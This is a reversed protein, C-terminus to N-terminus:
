DRKKDNANKEIEISQKEHNYYDQIHKIIYFTMTKWEWYWENNPKQRQLKKLQKLEYRIISNNICKIFSDYRTSYICLLHYKGPELAPNTKNLEKLTEQLLQEFMHKQNVRNIIYEFEDDTHDDNCPIKDSSSSKDKINIQINREEEENMIMNNMSEVYSIDDYISTM